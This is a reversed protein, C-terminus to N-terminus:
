YAQLLKISIALIPLRPFGMSFVAKYTATLIKERSNSLEEVQGQRPGQDQKALSVLSM